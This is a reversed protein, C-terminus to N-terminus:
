PTGSSHIRWSELPDQSGDGEDSIVCKQSQNNRQWGDTGEFLTKGLKRSLPVEERLILGDVPLNSQWM